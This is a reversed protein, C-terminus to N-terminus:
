CPQVEGRSGVIRQEIWQEVESEIFASGRQGIKVPKPFTGEAARKYITSRALGTRRIVEPLRLLSESM